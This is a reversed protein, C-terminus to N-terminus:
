IKIYSLYNIMMLVTSIIVLIVGSKYNVTSNEESTIFKTVDSNHILMILVIMMSIAYRFLIESIFNKGFLSLIIGILILGSISIYFWMLLKLTSPIGHISSDNYNISSNEKDNIASTYSNFYLTFNFKLNSDDEPNKINITSSILPLTAYGVTFLIGIITFIIICNTKYM